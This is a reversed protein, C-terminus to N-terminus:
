AKKNVSFNLEPLSVNAEKTADELLVYYTFTYTQGAVISSNTTDANIVLKVNDDSATDAFATNNYTVTVGANSVTSFTIKVMYAFANNMNFNISSSVTSAKDDQTYVGDTGTYSKLTGNTVGDTVETWSDDGLADLGDTGIIKSTGTGIKYLKANIDVLVDAFTYTVTNSVNFSVVGTAYVGFVLLSVALVLASITGFLKRKKM